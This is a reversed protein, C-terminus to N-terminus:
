NWRKLSMLIYKLTTNPNNYGVRAMITKVPVGMEALQSIHTHRFIHTTLRKNLKGEQKVMKIGM